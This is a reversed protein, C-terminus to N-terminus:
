GTPSSARVPEASVTCCSARIAEPLDLGSRSTPACRAVDAGELLERGLAKRLRFLRQRLNARAGTPEVDPWLLAALPPAADAGRDGRLRLAARGEARAAVTTRRGRV